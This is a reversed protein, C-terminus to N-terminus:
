TSASCIAFACGAIVPSGVVGAIAPGAVVVALVVVGTIAAPALVAAGGIAVPAPAAVGAIAVLALGGSTTGTAAFAVLGDGTAAFAALGTDGGAIPADGDGGALGPADGACFGAEGAIVLGVEGAGFADGGAGRAVVAAM